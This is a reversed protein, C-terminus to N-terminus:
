KKEETPAPMSMGAKGMEDLTASFMHRIPEMQRKLSEAKDKPLERDFQEDQSSFSEETFKRLAKYDLNRYDDVGEFVPRLERRAKEDTDNLIREFTAIQAQDLGANTGLANAFLKLQRKRAELGESTPNLILDWMKKMEAGIGQRMSKALAQAYADLEKPKKEGEPGPEGTYGSILAQAPDVKPAERAKAIEARLATEREEAAARTATGEKRLAEVAAAVEAIRRELAEVRLTVDPAAAVPPPPPPAKAPPSRLSVAIAASVSVAVATAVAITAVNGAAM